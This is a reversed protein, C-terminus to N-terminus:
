RVRRSTGNAGDAAASASGATRPSGSLPPKGALLELLQADLDVQKLEAAETGPPAVGRVPGM